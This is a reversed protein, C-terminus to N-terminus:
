AVDGSKARVRVGPADGNTLEVGADELAARIAALTRAHPQRRGQKFDGLTSHGVQSATALDERRMELM